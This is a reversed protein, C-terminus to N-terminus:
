DVRPKRKLTENLADVSEILKELLNPLDEGWSNMKQVAEAVEDMVESQNKIADTQDYTAFLTRDYDVPPTKKVIKPM